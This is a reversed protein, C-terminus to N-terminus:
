RPVPAAASCPDAVVSADVSGGVPKDTLPLPQGAPPSRSLTGEDLSLRPRLPRCWELLRREVEPMLLDDEPYLEDAPVLRRLVALQEGVWLIRELSGLTDLLKLLGEVGDDIGLFLERVRCTDVVFRLGCFPGSGFGGGSNFDVALELSVVVVVVVVVVM